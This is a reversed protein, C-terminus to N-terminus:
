ACDYILRLFLQSLCDQMYGGNWRYSITAEEASGNACERAFKKSSEYFPADM